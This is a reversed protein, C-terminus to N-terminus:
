EFLSKYDRLVDYAADLIGARSSADARAWAWVPDTVNSLLNMVRIDDVLQNDVIYGIFEALIQCFTRYDSAASEETQAAACLALVQEKLADRHEAGTQVAEVFQEVLKAFEVEATEERGASASPSFGAAPQEFSPFDGMLEPSPELSPTSPFEALPESTAGFGAMADDMAGPASPLDFGSMTDASPEPESPFDFPSTPEAQEVTSGVTLDSELSPEVPFSTSVEPSQELGFGSSTEPVTEPPMDASPETPTEVGVSEGASGIAKRFAELTLNQEEPTPELLAPDREVKEAIWLLSLAFESFNNVRYLTKLEGVIDEAGAIRQRIQDFASRHEFDPLESMPVGELLSVLYQQSRSM